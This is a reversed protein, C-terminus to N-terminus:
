EDDAALKQKHYYNTLRMFGTACGISKGGAVDELMDDSLESAGDAFAEQEACENTSAEDMHAKQVLRDDKANGMATM